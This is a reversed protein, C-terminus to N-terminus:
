DPYRVKAVNKRQWHKFENLQDVIDRHFEADDPGYKEIIEAYNALIMISFIDKARFIFFPEGTTHCEQLIRFAKPGPQWEPPEIVKAEVLSPAYGSAEQLRRHTEKPDEPEARSREYSRSKELIEAQLEKVDEPDFPKPM